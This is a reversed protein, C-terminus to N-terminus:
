CGNHANTADMIHMQQIWRYQYKNEIFQIAKHHFDEFNVNTELKLYKAILETVENPIFKEMENGISRSVYWAILPLKVNGYDEGDWDEFCSRLSIGKKLCDRFIDDKNLILIIDVDGLCARNVIMNWLKISDKIAPQYFWKCQHAYDSLAAVFVIADFCSFLELKTRYLDSCVSGVDTFQFSKKNIMISVDKFSKSSSSHLLIDNVTPTYKEDMIVDIRDFFHDLNDELFYDDSFFYRLSYKTKISKQKWIVSIITAIKTLHEDINLSLKELSSISKEDDIMDCLVIVNKICNERIDNIVHHKTKPSNFEYIVNDTKDKIGKNHICDLQNILTTKGSSESGVFAVRNRYTRSNVTKDHLLTDDIFSYTINEPKYFCTGM